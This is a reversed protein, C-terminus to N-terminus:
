DDLEGTDSFFPSMVGIKCRSGLMKKDLKSLYLEGTSGSGMTWTQSYGLASVTGQTSGIPVQASEGDGVARIIMNCSVVKKVDDSAKNNYSDVIVAADELLTECLTREAESLTRRCRKRVDEFTAYSM